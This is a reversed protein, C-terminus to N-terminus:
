NCFGIGFNFCARGRGCGGYWPYACPSCGYYGAGWYPGWGCPRCYGYWPYGYYNYWWLSEQLNRCRIEEKVQIIRKIDNEVHDDILAMLDAKTACGELSAIKGNEEYPQGDKFLVFTPTIPIDYDCELQSLKPLSTNVVLFTVDGDKYEQVCSTAKFVELQDKHDKKAQKDSCSRVYRYFYAVCIQKENILRNFREYSNVMHIKANLSFVMSSMIAVTFFGALFKM